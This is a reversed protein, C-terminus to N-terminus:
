DITQLLPTDPGSLFSRAKETLEWRDLSSYCVSHIYSPFGGPENHAVGTAPIESLHIERECICCKNRVIDTIHVM